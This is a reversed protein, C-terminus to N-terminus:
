TSHAALVDSRRWFAVLPVGEFQDAIEAPFEHERRRDALCVVAVITVKRTEKLYKFCHRMTDGSNITDDVVVVRSSESLKLCEDRITIYEEAEIGQPALAKGTRVLLM